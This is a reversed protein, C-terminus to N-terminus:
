SEESTLERISYNGPWCDNLASVLKEAGFYDDRYAVFIEQGDELPRTIKYAGQLDRDM